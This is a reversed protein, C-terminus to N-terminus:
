LSSQLFAILIILFSWLLETLPLSSLLNCAEIIEQEYCCDRCAHRSAWPEVFTGDSATSRWGGSSPAGRSSCFNEPCLGTCAKTCKLYEAIVLYKVCATFSVPAWRRHFEYLGLASFSLLLFQAHVIQPKSHVEWQSSGMTERELLVLPNLNHKSQQQKTTKKWKQSGFINNPPFLPCCAPRVRPQQRILMGSRFCCSSELSSLSKCGEARSKDEGGTGRLSSQPIQSKRGQRLCNLVPIFSFSM